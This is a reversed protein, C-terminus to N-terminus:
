VHRGHDHRVIMRGTDGFWADGVVGDGVFELVREAQQIHSHEVVEDASVPFRCRQGSESEESLGKRYQM